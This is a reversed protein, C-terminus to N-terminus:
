GACCHRLTQMCRLDGTLKKGTRRTTRYSLWENATRIRAAVSKWFLLSQFPVTSSYNRMFSASIVLRDFRTSFRRVPHEYNISLTSASLTDIAHRNRTSQKGIAQWGSASQSVALSSVCVSPHCSAAPQVCDGRSTGVEDRGRRICSMTYFVRRDLVMEVCLHNMSGTYCSIATHDCRSRRLAVSRAREWRNPSPNIERHKVAM